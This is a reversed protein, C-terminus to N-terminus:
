CGNVKSLAALCRKCTVADQRITWRARLHLARPPDACLPSVRGDARIKAAMHYPRNDGYPDDKTAGYNRM